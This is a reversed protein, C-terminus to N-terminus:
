YEVLSLSDAFLELDRYAVQLQENLEKEDTIYDDIAKSLTIFLQRDGKETYILSVLKAGCTSRPCWMTGRYFSQGEKSYYLEDQTVKDPIRHSVFKEDVVVFWFEYGDLIPFDYYDGQTIYKPTLRKPLAPLDIKDVETQKDITWTSINVGDVTIYRSTILAGKYKSEIKEVTKNEFLPSYLFFSKSNYPEKVPSSMDAYNSPTPQIDSTTNKEIYNSNRGFDTDVLTAEDKSNYTQRLAISSYILIGIVLIGFTLVQPKKKVKSITRKITKLM